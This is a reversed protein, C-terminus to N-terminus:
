WEIMNFEPNHRGGFAEGGRWVKCIEFIKPALKAALLKKLSYEPSTILSGTFVQGREDTFSTDFPTLYPELSPVPVVAPTSVELFGREIFFNRMQRVIEARKILKDKVAM